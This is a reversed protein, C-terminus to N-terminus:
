RLKSVTFAFRGTYLTGSAGRVLAGPGAASGAFVPRSGAVDIADITTYIPAGGPPRGLLPYTLGGNGFSRTGRAARACASSSRTRRAAAHRRAPDPRQQRAVMSTIRIERGARAIRAVGNSGFRTDLSGDPRLRIVAGRPTGAATLDTGAVLTM